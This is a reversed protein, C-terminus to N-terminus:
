RRKKGREKKQQWSSVDPYGTSTFFIYEDNGCLAHSRACVNVEPM